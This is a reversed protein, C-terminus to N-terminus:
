EEEKKKKLSVYAAGLTGAMSAGFLSMWLGVNSMDGTEPTKVTNTITVKNNSQASTM